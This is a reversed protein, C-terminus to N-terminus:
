QFIYISQVALFIFAGNKKNCQINYRFIIQPQYSPEASSPMWTQSGSIVHPFSLVSEQFNDRGECMHQACLVCVCLLNLFNFDFPCKVKCTESNALLIVLLFNLGYDM